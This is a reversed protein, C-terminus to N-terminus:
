LGILQNLSYAVRALVVGCDLAAKAHRTVVSLVRDQWNNRRYSRRVSEVYEQANDWVNQTDKRM